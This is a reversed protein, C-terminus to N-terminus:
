FWCFNTMLQYAKILIKKKCVSALLNSLSSFLAFSSLGTYFKTQKNDDKLKGAPSLKSQRLSAQLTLIIEKQSSITQVQHQNDAVFSSLNQLQDQQSVITEKLTQLLKLNSECNSCTPSFQDSNDIEACLSGESQENGDTVGPLEDHQEEVERDMTAGHPDNNQKDREEATSTMRTTRKRAQLSVSYQHERRQMLRNCRSMSESSDSATKKSYVFISPVYDPDNKLKM